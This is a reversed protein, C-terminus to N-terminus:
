DNALDAMIPASFHEAMRAEAAQRGRQLSEGGLSSREVSFFTIDRIGITRLISTLYPTLFDPQRASEGSYSGGSSIAIFAPRDRLLGIKGEPSPRFTRHIRVVHDIWAKLTSPVTFNHMPTGIVLYDAAELERILIESEDLSGRQDHIEAPSAHGGLVSAYAADVHAITGAALRREVVAADPHRERLRQVIAASLRFSESAQGRPSCTIRLITTM